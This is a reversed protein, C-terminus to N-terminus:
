GEQQNDLTLSQDVSEPFFVLIVPVSASTELVSRLNDPTVDLVFPGPIAGSAASVGPASAGGVSGALGSLDVAGYMSSALPQSM